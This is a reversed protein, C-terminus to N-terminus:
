QLERNARLDRLYEVLEHHSLQMVDKQIAHAVMDHVHKDLHKILMGNMHPTTILVLKSYSNANRGKNLEQAIERSFNDIVVEKPDSHPSYTGHVAGNSAYHGQKESTLFESNKQKNEPHNIEKLLTVTMDNKDYEYIRCLNSNATIIWTM